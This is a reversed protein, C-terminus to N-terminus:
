YGQRKIIEIACELVEDRGETIGHITPRVYVDPIIGVRQTGRGDPYYIGNGSIGTSLGGPLVIGSVNGDAGATTSGVITTNDGARFAMATFESMSISHANVLVVLKGRYPTESAPIESEDRFTFEGPNKVSGVTYKLFHVPQSVFFSGLSFPVYTNPYNRIDIVIGRTDFFAEKIVPIDEARITELTIYGINDPLLRHSAPKANAFPEENAISLIERSHLAIKRQKEKGSSLYDVMATDNNSALIWRSMVMLRVAENSAPFYPRLSDVMSEVTRGNIRTIIDGKRLEAPAVAEPYVSTVVLRDEIFDVRFAPRKSGRLESIPDSWLTSHSNSVEGILRLAAVHYETEDAAVLFVPIYERLVDNWDKDTLYRYPSFYQVMNWYRYLSLLRFGADPYSMDSYARENTFHPNEVGLFM